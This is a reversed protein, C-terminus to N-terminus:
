PTSPGPTNSTASTAPSVLVRVAAHIGGRSPGACCRPRSVSSPPPSSSPTSSTATALVAGSAPAVPGPEAVADGAETAARAAKAGDAGIGEIVVLTALDGGTRRGVV